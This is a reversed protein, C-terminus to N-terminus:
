DINIFFYKKNTCDDALRSRSVKVVRKSVALKESIEKYTKM